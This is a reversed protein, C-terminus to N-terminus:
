KEELDKVESRIERAQKFVVWGNSIPDNPYFDLNEVDATSLDVWRAIGEEKSLLLLWINNEREHIAVDGSELLGWNM